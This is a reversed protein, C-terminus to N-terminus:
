TENVQHFINVREKLLSLLCTVPSTQNVCLCCKGSMIACAEGPWATPTDLARWNQLVMPALSNVGSQPTTLTQVITNFEQEM